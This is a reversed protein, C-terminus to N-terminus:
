NQNFNALKQYFADKYPGEFVNNLFIALFFKQGMKPGLFDFFSWKQGNKTMKGIERVLFDHFDKNVEGQIVKYQSEHMM